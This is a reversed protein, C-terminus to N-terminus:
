WLLWDKVRQLDMLLGLERLLGLEGLREFWLLPEELYKSFFFAVAVGCQM